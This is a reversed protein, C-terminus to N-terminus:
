PELRQGTHSFRLNRVLGPVVLNKLTCLKPLILAALAAALAQLEERKLDLDRTQAHADHQAGGDRQAAEEHGLHVDDQEM